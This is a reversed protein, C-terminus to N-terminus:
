LWECDKILPCKRCAICSAVLDTLRRHREKWSDYGIVLPLAERKPVIPYKM